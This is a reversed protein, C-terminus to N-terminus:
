KKAAKKKPASKAAKNKPESPAAAKAEKAAAKSKAETKLRALEKAVLTKRDIKLADCLQELASGKQLYAGNISVEVFLARLEDASMKDIADDFAKAAVDYDVDDKIFGRRELAAENTGIQSLTDRVVIRWLKADLERKEITRQAERAGIADERYTVAKLAEAQLKEPVRAVYLATSATIKGERLAERSPKTLATLKLRCYVYAKSKGLKAALDDVSYGHDKHLREYGEAEEIPDIDVRQVNEVLQVELVQKDTLPRVFVALSELGAAKAARWRREGMVLEYTTHGNSGVPRVTPPQLVGHAKVSETLETLDGLNKRNFPSPVIKNIGVTMLQQAQLPLTRETASTAPTEPKTVHVTTMIKM